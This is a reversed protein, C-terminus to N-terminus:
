TARGALVADLEKDNRLTTPKAEPPVTMQLKEVLESAARLLPLRAL